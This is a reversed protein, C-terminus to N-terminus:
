ERGRALGLSASVRQVGQNQGFGRAQLEDTTFRHVDYRLSAMFDWRATIPRRYDLGAGALFRTTGGRLFVGRDETPWYALLGVGARWRANSAIPGDLGLIVSGTRLTGLDTDTGNTTSRYGSTTLAVELGARYRPAIPLAAGLALTPALGQREEVQDDAIRDQILATAYTVGIRAFYDVQAQLPSPGAAPLMISLAVIARMM